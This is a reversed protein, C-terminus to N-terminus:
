EWFARTVTHKQFDVLQRGDQRVESALFVVKSVIERRSQEQQEFAPGHIVILHVLLCELPDNVRVIAVILVMLLVEARHEYRIVDNSKPFGEAQVVLVTAIPWCM